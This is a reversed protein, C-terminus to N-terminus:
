TTPFCLHQKPRLCGGWCGLEIRHAGPFRLGGTVDWALEGSRTFVTLGGGEGLEISTRSAVLLTEENVDTAFLAVDYVDHILPEGISSVIVPSEPHSLDVVHVSEYSAVYARGSAVHVNRSFGTDVPAALQILEPSGDGPLRRRVVILGEATTVLVLDGWVAVDSVADTDLFSVIEPAEPVTLDVEYLGDISGVYVRTGVIDVARSDGTDVSGVVVADVPECELPEPDDVSLDCDHDRADGAVPEGGPFCTACDDDCDSHLDCEVPSREPDCRCRADHFGDGDLDSNGTWRLPDDDNCDDCREDGEPCCRDDQHGDGDVDANGLWRMPHLDDCDDGGCGVDVHNDGDLDAHGTWRLPDDDNCDDCMPTAATCCRQDTHGDGDADAHGNWRAANQDDCDDGGCAVDDHGDGDRDAHGNWLDDNDDDCDACYDDIGVQCCRSDYWGDGDLDALAGPYRSAESDDCDLEGCCSSEQELFFCDANPYSDGDLDYRNDCRGANRWLGNAGCVRAQEGM